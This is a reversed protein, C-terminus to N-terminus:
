NPQRVLLFRTNHVTSRSAIQHVKQNLDAMHHQQRQISEIRTRCPMCATTNGIHDELSYSGHVTFWPVHHMLWRGHNITCPGHVMLLVCDNSTAVKYDSYSKQEASRRCCPTVRVRTTIPSNSVSGISSLFCLLSLHPLMVHEVFYAYSGLTLGWVFTKLSYM